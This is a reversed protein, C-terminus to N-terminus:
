RNMWPNDAAYEALVTEVKQRTALPDRADEQLLLAQATALDVNFAEVKLLLEHIARHMILWFPRLDMFARMVDEPTGSTALEGRWLTFRLLAVSTGRDQLEGGVELPLPDAKGLEASLMNAFRQPVRGRSKWSSITSQDIGLKRALEADNRASVVKRLEELTNEVATSM